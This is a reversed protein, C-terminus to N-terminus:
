YAKLRKCLIVKEWAEGFCLNVEMDCGVRPFSGCELIFFRCLISIHRIVLAFRLININLYFFCVINCCYLKLTLYSRSVDLKTM